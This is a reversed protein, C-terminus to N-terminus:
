GGVLRWAVSAACWAVAVSVAWVAVTAAVALWWPASCLGAAADDSVESCRRCM